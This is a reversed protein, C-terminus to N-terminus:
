FDSAIVTVSLQTSATLATAYTAQIAQSASSLYIYPNGDSDTPLGPWVSPSLLNVAPAGNAFGSNVAITVSTGGYCNSQTACTSTTGLQVTVLHTASPDNSTVWIGTVKTGDADGTYLTKYTGAADVGQVFTTGQMKPVQTFVPTNVVAALSPVSGCILTVLALWLLTRMRM